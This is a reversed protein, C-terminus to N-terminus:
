SKLDSLSAEAKILVDQAAKKEAESSAEALKAQADAVAREAADIAKAKKKAATDSQGAKVTESKGENLSPMLVGADKAAAYADDDLEGAWGRPYIVKGQGPITVEHRKKFRAFM